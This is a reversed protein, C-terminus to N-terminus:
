VDGESGKATALRSSGRLWASSRIWPGLRDRPISLRTIAEVVPATLGGECELGVFEEVREAFRFRSSV